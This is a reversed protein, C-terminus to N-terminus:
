AETMRVGACNGSRPTFSAPCAKTMGSLTPRSTAAMARLESKSALLEYLAFYDTLPAEKPNPEMAPTPLHFVDIGTFGTELAGCPVVLSTAKSGNGFRVQLYKSSPPMVYRIRDKLLRQKGNVVFRFREQTDIPVQDNELHGNALRIWGLVTKSSRWNGPLTATPHVDKFDLVWRLNNWSPGKACDVPNLDTLPDDRWNLDEAPPKASAAADPTDTPVIRIPGTLTYYASDIDSASPVATSADHVRGKDIKLTPAHYYVPLLKNVRTNIFGVDVHAVSRDSPLVWLTLGHFILQVGRFKPTPATVPMASKAADGAPAPSVPAPQQAPRNTDGQGCGIAVLGGGTMAVSAKLFDRRKM